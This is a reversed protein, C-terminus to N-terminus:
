PEASGLGCKFIMRAVVLSVTLLTEKRGSDKVMMRRYAETASRMGANM